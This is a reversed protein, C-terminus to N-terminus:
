SIFDELLASLEESNQFPIGDRLKEQDNPPYLDIRYPLVIMPATSNEKYVALQDNYVGLYFSWLLLSLTIIHKM